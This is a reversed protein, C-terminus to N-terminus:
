PATEDKRIAKAAASKGDVYGAAWDDGGAWEFTQQSEAIRACREREALLARAVADLLGENYGREVVAEAAARIDDPINPESM